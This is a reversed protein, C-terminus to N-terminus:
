RKLPRWGPAEPIQYKVEMGQDNTDDVMKLIIPQKQKQSTQEGSAM